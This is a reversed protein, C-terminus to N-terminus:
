GKRQFRSSTDMTTDKLIVVDGPRLPGSINRTLVKDKDDGDLVRCRAKVVGKVGIRGLLHTVVAATPM